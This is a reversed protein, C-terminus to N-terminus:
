LRGIHQSFNNKLFNYCIELFMEVVQWNPLDGHGVCPMKVYACGMNEVEIKSYYRTTNTLDIWLGISEQFLKVYKYFQCLM